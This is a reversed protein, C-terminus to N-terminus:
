VDGNKRRHHIEADSKRIYMPGEDEPDSGFQHYRRKGLDIMDPAFSYPGGPRQKVLPIKALSDPVISSDAGVLLHVEDGDIMKELQDWSTDLYESLRNGNKYLATYVRKKRADIIPAVMGPYFKYGYAIADLASITVLGANAALALGKATSLGIRLGTFSGPGKSCVLLDLDSAKLGADALLSEIIPVLAEAHKLGAKRIVEFYRDNLDDQLAVNLCETGTDIMLINM